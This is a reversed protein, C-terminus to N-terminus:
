LQAHETVTCLHAPQVIQILPDVWLTRGRAKLQKCMDRCGMTDCRVGTRIDAAHMMWVSGVGDVEFLDTPDYCPHYPANNSFMVGNRHYAFTDYFVPGAGLDTVPWGAIPCQGTDLFLKVLRQPSRLDSEHIILYEDDPRLADLGANYTESLRLLRTIPADGEIHTDHRLLTIDQGGHRAILARLKDETDDDNDGIMWLWRKVGTKSLLHNVRKSLDKDADNMWISLMVVNPYIM